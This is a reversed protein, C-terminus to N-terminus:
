RRRHGVVRRDRGTEEKVLLTDIWSPIVDLEVRLQEAVLEASHLLIADVKSSTQASDNVDRSEMPKM